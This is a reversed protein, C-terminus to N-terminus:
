MTKLPQPKTMLVARLGAGSGLIYCVPAFLFWGLMPLQGALVVLFASKSVSAFESVGGQSLEKHRDAVKLVLGSMGVFAVFMQLATLVWGLAKLVPLPSGLLLVGVLLPLLCALGLGFSGWPNNGLSSKARLAQNPLL